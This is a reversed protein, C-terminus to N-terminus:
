ITISLDYIVKLPVLSLGSFICLTNYVIIPSKDFFKNNFKKVGNEFLDIINM